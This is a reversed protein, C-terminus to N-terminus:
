EIFDPLEGREDRAHWSMRLGESRTNGGPPKLRALNPLMQPLGLVLRLIDRDHHQRALQVSKLILKRWQVKTAADLDLEGILIEGEENLPSITGDDNVRVCNGYGHVHPDPVLRSGKALNCTHCSYVLNRYDTELDSRLSRPLFHDIDFEGKVQGWCERRLCYICRFDFEDRLWDRYREYDAYGQPGHRRSHKEQTYRFPEVSRKM